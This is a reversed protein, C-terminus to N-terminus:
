IFAHVQAATNTTDLQLAQKFMAAATEPQNLGMHALGCRLYAKVSKSDRELANRCCWLVCIYDTISRAVSWIAQHEKCRHRYHKRSHRSADFAIKQDACMIIYSPMHESVLAALRSADPQMSLPPYWVTVIAIM